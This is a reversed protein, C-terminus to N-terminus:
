NSRVTTPGATGLLRVEAPMGVKLRGDNPVEIKVAYVLDVREERTQITKPTFEAQDSIWSVRGQIRRLGDTSDDVWVEVEQGLKLSPLQKGSFYARLFLPDLKAIKFLPKGLTVVEAPEALKLLVYGSIPSYIRCKALQDELLDIQARLPDAESLISRNALSVKERAADMQQEVVSIQGKIDDLKQPTAAKNAVLREFRRREVELKDLQKQLVLIDPEADQLKQDLSRLRAKLQAKQLHLQMTDVLGVLQGKELSIGEELEFSLLRGSAESSVLVEDAEFNGYADPLPEGNQCAALFLALFVLYINRIM